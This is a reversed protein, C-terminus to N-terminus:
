KSNSEEPGTVQVHEWNGGMGNKSENMSGSFSIKRGESDKMIGFKPHFVSDPYMDKNKM